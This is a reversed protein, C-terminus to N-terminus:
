PAPFGFYTGWNNPGIWEGELGDGWATEEEGYYISMEYILGGPNSEVTGPSSNGPDPPYFFENACQIYLTNNGELLYASVDYDDPFKWENYHVWEESLDSNRWDGYLGDSGVPNGNIFVKYGNDTTVKIPTANIVLGPINFEETIDCVTGFIPDAVWYRGPQNSEGGTDEWIWDGITFEGTAIGWNPHIWTPVATGTRPNPANPNTGSGWGAGGPGSYASYTETGLGDSYVDLTGGSGGVVVCHAAVYIDDGSAANYLISYEYTTVTPDHVTKYPFHGIQPNGKKNTPIGSPDDGVWLHSESMVWDGVTINYTVYVYGGEYGYEINGVLINQGAYLPEHGLVTYQLIVSGPGLAGDETESCGIVLILTLVLTSILIKTKM